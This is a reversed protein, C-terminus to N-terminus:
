KIVWSPRNLCAYEEIDESTAPSGEFDKSSCMCRFHHMGNFGGFGSKLEVERNCKNCYVM